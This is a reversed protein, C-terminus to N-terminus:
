TPSNNMLFLNVVFILRNTFHSSVSLFFCKMPYELSVLITFQRIIIFKSPMCGIICGHWKFLQFRFCIKDRLYRFTKTPVKLYVNILRIFGEFVEFYKRICKLCIIRSKERVETCIIDIIIRTQRRTLTTLLRSLMLYTLGKRRWQTQGSSAVTTSLEANHSRTLYTSQLRAIEAFRVIRTNNRSIPPIKEFICGVM